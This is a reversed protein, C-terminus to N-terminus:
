RVIRGSGSRASGPPYTLGAINFFAGGATFGLAGAGACYIKSTRSHAWRPVFQENPARFLQTKGFSGTSAMRGNLLGNSTFEASMTTAFRRGIRKIGSQQACEVQRLHHYCADRM